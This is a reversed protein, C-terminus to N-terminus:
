TYLPIKYTTGGIVVGAWSNPTTLVRTASTGYYDAVVGIANTAPATAGDNGVLVNERTTGTRTFFLNTGNYEIAGTEATTLNTGSTLKIPATGATASGAALHLIASPTTIKSSAPGSVGIGTSSFRIRENSTAFGNTAVVVDADGSQTNILLIQSSASVVQVLRGSGATLLGNTTYGSGFRQIGINNGSNNQAAVFSTAATGTNSNINFISISGNTSGTATITQNAVPVTGIGMFGYHQVTQDGFFETNTNITGANMVSIRMTGTNNASGRFTQIIGVRKETTGLAYNAWILQGLSTGSNTVNRAMVFLGPDGSNATTTSGVYIQGTSPNTAFAGATSPETSAWLAGYIDLKISQVNNTWFGLPASNNTGINLGATKTSQIVASDAVLLGSSTFGASISQMSINGSLTASNSVLFLARAATGSTANILDFNTNANQDKRFVAVEAGIASTTGFLLNGTTIRMEETNNRIFTLDNADTTGLVATAGFANGSQKFYTALSATTPIEYGSTLSFRGNGSNYDLGTATSSISSRARADTYYLNSGEALDTTSKASFATDFRAQTYYLNTGETVLTTTYDGSQATVTGTRGFVSDVAGSADTAPEWRQLTSNYKLVQGNTVGAVNVDGLNALLKSGGALVERALEPLNKIHSADIKLEPDNTPLDNIKAITEEIPDCTHAPIKAFVDEVIKTEDADKGDAGDKGNKGPLAKIKQVEELFSKASKLITNYENKVERTLENVFNDLMEQKSDILVLAEAVKALNDSSVKSFDEKSKNIFELVFVLFKELEKPTITDDQITELVKNLKELKRDM